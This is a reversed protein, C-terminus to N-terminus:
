NILVITSVANDPGKAGQPLYPHRPHNPCGLTSQTALPPWPYSPAAISTGRAFPDGKEGSWGRRTQQSSKLPPLLARQEEEWLVLVAFGFRAMGRRVDFRFGRRLNM